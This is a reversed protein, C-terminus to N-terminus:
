GDDYLEDSTGRPAGVPKQTRLREKFAEWSKKKAAAEAENAKKVPLMEAVVEGRVTIQAVKGKRVQVPIKSFSRNAETSTVRPM